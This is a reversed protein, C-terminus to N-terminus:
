GAKPWSCSRSARWTRPTARTSPGWVVTMVLHSRRSRTKTSTGPATSFVCWPVVSSAPLGRFQIFIIQLVVPFVYLVKHVTIFVDQTLIYTMHVRFFFLLGDLLMVSSSRDRRSQHAEALFYADVLFLIFSFFKATTVSHSEVIVSNIHSSASCGYASLVM